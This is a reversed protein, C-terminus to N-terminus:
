VCRCALRASQTSVLGKVSSYLVRWTAASGFLAHGCHKPQNAHVNVCEDVDASVLGVHNERGTPPGQDDFVVATVPMESVGFKLPPLALRPLASAVDNYSKAFGRQFWGGFPVEHQWRSVAREALVVEAGPDNPVDERRCPLVCVAHSAARVGTALM